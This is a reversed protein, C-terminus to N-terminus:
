KTTRNKAATFKAQLEPKKELQELLQLSVLLLFVPLSNDCRINRGSDEIETVLDLVIRCGQNVERTANRYKGLCVGKLLRRGTPDMCMNM